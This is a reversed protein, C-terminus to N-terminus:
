PMFRLINEHLFERSLSAYTLSPDLNEKWFLIQANRAVSKIPSYPYWFDSRSSSSKGRSSSGVSVPTDTQQSAICHWSLPKRVEWKLFAYVVHHRHGTETTATSKLTSPTTQWISMVAPTSLWVILQHTSLTTNENEFTLVRVSFVTGFSYSCLTNLLRTTQFNVPFGWGDDLDSKQYGDDGIFGGLM